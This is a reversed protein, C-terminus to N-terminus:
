DKSNEFYEAYESLAHNIIDSLNVRQQKALKELSIRLSSPIRVSITEKDGSYRKPPLTAKRKDMRM